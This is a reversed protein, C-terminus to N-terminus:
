RIKTKRGKQDLDLLIGPSSCSDVGINPAIQEWLSRLLRTTRWKEHLKQLDQISQDKQQVKLPSWTAGLLPKTSTPDWFSKEENCILGALKMQDKVLQAIEETEKITSAAVAVDDQYIRLANKYTESIPELAKKMFESFLAPSNRTGMPLVVYKYFKADPGIFGYFDQDEVAVPVAHFAKIFDLKIM